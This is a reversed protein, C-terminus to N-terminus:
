ACLLWVAAAHLPWAAVTLAHFVEHHGALRPWPEPWRTAYVVAGATLLAGSAAVLAVVLGADVVAGSALLLPLVPVVAWGLAATAATHLRRPCDPWVWRSAALMLAATWLAALLVVGLGGPVGLLLLPTASAAVVLPINGHDLQKMRRLGAEGWARRHYLASTTFLVLSVAAYVGVAGAELRTDARDLLVLGAVAVVPAFGAHLWGRLAPRAAPAPVLELVDGRRARARARQRPLPAAATTTTSM